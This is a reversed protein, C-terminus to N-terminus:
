KVFFDEKEIRGEGDNARVIKKKPSERWTRQHKRCGGQPGGEGEKANREGVRATKKRKVYQSVKQQTKRCSM